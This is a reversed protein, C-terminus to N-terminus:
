IRVLHALSTNAIALRAHRFGLHPRVRVKQYEDPITPSWSFIQPWQDNIWREFRLQIHGIPHRRATDRSSTASDDLKLVRDTVNLYLLRAFKRQGNVIRHARTGAASNGYRLSGM